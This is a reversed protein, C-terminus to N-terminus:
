AWGPTTSVPARKVCRHIGYTVYLYFRGPEGFFTENSPSRRRYGHCAPDERSYAVAEVIAGSLLEGKPQPKV